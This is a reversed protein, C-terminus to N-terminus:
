ENKKSGNSCDCKSPPLGSTGYRKGCKKCEWGPVERYDGFMNIYGVMVGKWNNTITKYSRDNQQLSLKEMSRISM